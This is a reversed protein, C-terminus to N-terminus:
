TSDQELTFQYVNTNGNNFAAECYALYFEWTRQFKDDFGLAQVQDLEGLFQERWIKLTKAYSQGFAFQDTVKLGANGAAAIFREPSPLMGGPFIFQQIFDTGNVYREFLAEDITITQVVAKAGPKLCRKITEFYAPWYEKGVAEFMEISVIADYQGQEDRYDQLSVETQESQQTASMRQQVYAQQESSLTLGRVAYGNANAAHAFGGWGCGIELIKDGAKGDLQDLIRQYKKEQGQSLNESGNAQSETEDFLASSYTMSQDLWLSYFANGLDYHAHINRRAGKRSNRNMLHSFRHLLRGAWNGYVIAELDDRNAILLNLTDILSNTDWDRDIYTQAFGIDGSRMSASFVNWNTLDITASLGSRGFHRTTSDPLRITLQGSDISELLRLAVRASRPPPLHSKNVSPSVTKTNM